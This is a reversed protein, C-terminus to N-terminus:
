SLEERLRTNPADCVSERSVFTVPLQISEPTTGCLLSWLLDIGLQGMREPQQIVCTIPPTTLEFTEFDDYGILALDRGARLRLRRMARLAGLTMLSDSALLATPHGEQLMQTAIADGSREQFNGFGILAPDTDLGLRERATLFARHRQLGTSTSLPGSLYGIRTHGHAALTEVARLIGGENDSTVSPAEFGDLVRDVFVVPLGTRHLLTADATAGQPALLLGDIRRSALLDIYQRQQVPDDEANTLLTSLRHGRAAREAGHAIEAFFPNRIDPVIVGITGTRASRLSQAAANPHYDLRRAAERVQTLTEESVLDSGQLARSATAPSVGAEAAVERLTVRRM